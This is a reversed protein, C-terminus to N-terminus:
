RTSGASTSPVPGWTAGLAFKERNEACTDVWRPPDRPEAGYEMALCLVDEFLIRGTPYHKKDGLEFVHLHPSTVHSDSAPHWHYGVLRRERQGYLHYIWGRTSVKYPGREGDAAVVEYRMQASLSINVSGNLKFPLSRNIALVGEKGFVLTDATVKGDVFCVLAAQLPAVFARVADKPTDGAM